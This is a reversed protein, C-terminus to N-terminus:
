SEDNIQDVEGYCNGALAHVQAPTLTTHLRYERLVEVIEDCLETNVDDDAQASAPIFLLLLVILVNM